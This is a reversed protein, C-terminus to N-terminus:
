LKKLHAACWNNKTSHEQLMLGTEAAKASLDKIDTQYFGSILLDGQSHLMQSLLHFSDLLINKNINALVVDFTAIGKYHNLDCCTFELNSIGNLQKNEEINDTCWPDTDICV